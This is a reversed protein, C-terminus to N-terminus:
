GDHASPATGKYRYLASWVCEPHMTGIYRMALAVGSAQNGAM